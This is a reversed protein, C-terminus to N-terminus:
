SGTGRHATLEATLEQQLRAARSLFSLITNLEPERYEAYLGHLGDVWGTLLSYVSDIREPVAEIVVRRRDTPHRVRRAFGKRELRDVLATVSAAALGSHEALKGATLPGLRDLLEMAKDETPSLGMREAVAYHFMVTATSLARGAAMLRDTLDPQETPVLSM